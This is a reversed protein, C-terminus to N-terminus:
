SILSVFFNRVAPFQNVVVVVAALCLAVYILGRMTKLFIWLLIMSVGIVIIKQDLSNILDILFEM